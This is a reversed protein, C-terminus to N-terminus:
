SRRPNELFYTDHLDPPTVNPFVAHCAARMNMGAPTLRAPEFTFHIV